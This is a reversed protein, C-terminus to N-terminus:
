SVRNEGTIIIPVRDGFGAFTLRELRCYLTRRIIQKGNLSLRKGTLHYEVIGKCDAILSEVIKQENTM